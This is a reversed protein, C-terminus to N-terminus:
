YFSNIFNKLTQEDINGRIEKIENNKKSVGFFVPIGQIPPFKEQFQKKSLFESVPYDKVNLKPYAKKIKQKLGQKNWKEMFAACHFCSEVNHVIYLTDKTDKKNNRNKTKRSGGLKIKSKKSTTTPTTSPSSRKLYKPDLTRLWEKVKPDTRKYTKKPNSM